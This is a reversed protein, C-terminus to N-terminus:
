AEFDNCFYFFFFFLLFCGRKSTVISWNFYSLINAQIVLCFKDLGHLSLFVFLTLGTFLLVPLDAEQALEYTSRIQEYLEFCWFAHSTELFMILFFSVVQSDGNEFTGRWVHSEITTFSTALFGILFWEWPTHLYFTGGSFPRSFVEFTDVGHHFCSYWLFSNHSILCLM